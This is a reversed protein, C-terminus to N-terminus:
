YASPIRYLNVHNPKSFRTYMETPLSAIAFSPDQALLMRLSSLPMILMASLQFRTFFFPRQEMKEYKERIDEIMELRLELDITPILSDPTTFNPRDELYKFLLRKAKPTTSSDNFFVELAIAAAAESYDGM